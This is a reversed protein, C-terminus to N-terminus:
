AIQFTIPVGAFTLPTGSFTLAFPGGSPVLGRRHVVQLFRTTVPM